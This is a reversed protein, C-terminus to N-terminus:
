FNYIARLPIKKEKALRCADEYEIATKKTEEYITEKAKVDGYPTSVIV